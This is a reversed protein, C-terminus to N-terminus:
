AQTCVECFPTGARAAEILVNAQAQPNVAPPQQSPPRAKPPKNIVLDVPCVNPTEAVYEQAKSSPAGASPSGSAGGGSREFLCLAGNSMLEAVRLYIQAGEMSQATGGSRLLIRRLDSSSVRQLRRRFYEADMGPFYPVRRWGAAKPGFKSTEAGGITQSFCLAYQRGMDEFTLDPSGDLFVM